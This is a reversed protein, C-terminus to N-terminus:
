KLKGIFNYFENRTTINEEFAGSLKSTMMTSDHKVGRVCSCMHKAEIVVAIGRNGGITEHLVNHIEMTLQEQVQPRTAFHEVLRNLKSLGIIQGKEDPIYAVHAVGIFSLNHHSCNSNVTINGNFVMGDYGSDNDFATINPPTKYLGSWLDEVFSKAVRRPTDKMNVDEQWNFGLATLFKGYEIAATAIIDNKVNTDVEGQYKFSDPKKLKNM